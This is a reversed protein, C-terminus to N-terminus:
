APLNWDIPDQKTRELYENAKSFHKCGFFGRHASLPSPHAATLVCHKKSNIRRCKTKAPGGWLLFVIGKGERKNLAEVVADTFREWGRGKHSQPKSREVTLVNNLLLVGQKAWAELNGHRPRKWGEIDSELEKYMNQLSPPTPVGRMVSFCMGHAQGPGHYPDQGLIVVKTRALPSHNFASFVMEAPPYITKSEREEKVFEGLQKWSPERTVVVVAKRWSPELSAGGFAGPGAATDSKSGGTAAIASERARRKALAAERNAAIRAVVDDPLSSSKPAPPPEDYCAKSDEDGAATPKRQAASTKQQKAPPGGLGGGPGFYSSIRKQMTASIRRIRAVGRATESVCAAPFTELPRPRASSPRRSRRPVAETDGRSILHVVPSDRDLWSRAGRGLAVRPQVCTHQRSRCSATPKTMIRAPLRLQHKVPHNWFNAPARWAGRRLLGGPAVALPNITVRRAGGLAPLLQCPAGREEDAHRAARAHLITSRREKRFRPVYRM